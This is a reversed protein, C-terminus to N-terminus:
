APIEKMCRTDTLLVRFERVGKVVAAGPRAAM